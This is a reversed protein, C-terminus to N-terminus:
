NEEFLDIFGQLKMHLDTVTKSIYGWCTKSPRVSMRCGSMWVLPCVALRVVGFRYGEAKPSPYYSM